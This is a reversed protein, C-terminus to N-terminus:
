KRLVEVEFLFVGLVWAPWFAAIVAALWKGGPLLAIAVVPSLHLLRYGWYISRIIVPHVNM